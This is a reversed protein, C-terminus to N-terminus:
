SKLTSALFSQKYFGTQVQYGFDCISKVSISINCLCYSCKQDSGGGEVGWFTSVYYKFQVRIYFFIPLFLITLLTLYKYFGEPTLINQFNSTFFTQCTSKIMMIYCSILVDTNICAFPTISFLQFFAFM